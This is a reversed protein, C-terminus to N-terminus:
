CGNLPGGSGAARCVAAFARSAGFSLQACACPLSRASMRLPPALLHTSAACRPAGFCARARPWTGQPAAVTDLACWRQPAPALFHKTGDFKENRVM